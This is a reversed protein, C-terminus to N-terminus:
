DILVVASVSVSVADRGMELSPAAFESGGKFSARSLRPRFPHHKNENLNIEVINVSSKGLAKAIVEARKKIKELASVLLEDKQALRGEDSLYGNLNVMVFGEKQLKGSVDLLIKKNKSDLIIQQSAISEKYAKSVHDWNKRVNYNESKVSLDKEIKVLKLADAIALNLQDQIKKVDEGKAEFKLVAKFRDQLIKVQVVEQLNVKTVDKDLEEKELFCANLFLLGVVTFIRFM